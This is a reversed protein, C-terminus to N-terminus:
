PESFLSFYTTEREGRGHPLLAITDYGRRQLAVISQGEVRLSQRGIEEDGIRFVLDYAGPTTAIALHSAYAPHALVVRLGSETFRYGVPACPRWWTYCALSPFSAPALGQPPLWALQVPKEGYTALFRDRSDDFSGLELEISALWRAPSFLPGQTVFAIKEYYERLAPHRIVNTGRAVTERYGEPVPRMFHGMKLPKENDADPIPLRSRLPDSLAFADIIRVDPGAYYGGIGIAPLVPPERAFRLSRGFRIFEPYPAPGSSRKVTLGTFVHFALRCDVISLNADPINQYRDTITPAGVKAALLAIAAAAFAFARPEIRLDAILAAAAALPITFFRGSMFDGGVALVYALALAIGIAVARRRASFVGIGISIALAFLTLPDIRLGDAFYAYGSSLFRMESIGSTLKARASNPIVSGYYLFAFLAWAFLPFAGMLLARPQRRARVLAPLALWILDLRTVLLLSAFFTQTRISRPSGTSKMVAAAWAIALVHALGNEMGSASFDVFARSLCLVLLAAAASWASRANAVVLLGAVLALAIQLVSITVFEERTIALAITCAIMWLPNTYAQVREYTNWRPGYGALWNECTRFTIYADDAMWACRVVAYLLLVLLGASILWKRSRM